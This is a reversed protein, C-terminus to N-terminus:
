LSLMTIGWGCHPAGYRGSQNPQPQVGLTALYLPFMENMWTLYVGGYPNIILFVGLHAEIYKGLTM